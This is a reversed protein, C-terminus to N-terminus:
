LGKKKKENANINQLCEVVQRQETENLDKVANMSYEEIFNAAKMVDVDHPYKKGKSIAKILKLKKQIPMTMIVHITNQQIDYAIKEIKNEEELM